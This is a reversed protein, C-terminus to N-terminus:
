RLLMQYQRVLGNKPETFAQVLEDKSLGTTIVLLPFRGIFEPMM